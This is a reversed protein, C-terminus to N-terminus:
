LRCRKQSQDSGGRPHHPHVGGDELLKTLKDKSGFDANVYVLGDTNLTKLLSLDSSARVAVHTEMGAELAAAVLHYGIFGSAGTIFLKEKM